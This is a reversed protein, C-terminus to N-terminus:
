FLPLGTFNVAPCLLEIHREHFILQNQKKKDTTQNMQEDTLQLLSINTTEPKM